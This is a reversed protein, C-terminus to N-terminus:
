NTGDRWAVAYRGGAEALFTDLEVLSLPDPLPYRDRIRRKLETHYRAFVAFDRPYAREDVGIFQGARRGRRLISRWREIPALGASEVGHSFLMLGLEDFPPETSTLYREVAAASPEVNFLM